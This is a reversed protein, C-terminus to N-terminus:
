RNKLRTFLSFIFGLNNRSYNQYTHKISGFGSNFDAIGKINSGAFDLVLDTGAYNKLFLDVLLYGVKNKRGTENIASFIVARKYKIIFGASGCINGSKDYANYLIFCDNKQAFSLVDRMREFLYNPIKNGTLQKKLFILGSINQEKKVAINKKYSRNVNKRHNKSYSKKLENYQKKLQLEYTINETHTFNPVEIIEFSNQKINIVKFKPPIKSFFKNLLDFDIEKESFVGLRASFFPNYIYNIFFKRKHIIPMVSIYDNEVIADWGPCLRDLYWSLAYVIRNKSVSICNDWKKKDINKHKIYRM